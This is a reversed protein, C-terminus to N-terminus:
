SRACREFARDPYAKWQGARGLSGSTQAPHKELREAHNKRGRVFTGTGSGARHHQKQRKTRHSSRHLAAGWLGLRGASDNDEIGMFPLDGPCAAMQRQALAQGQSRRYPCLPRKQYGGVDSDTHHGRRSSCVSRHQAMTTHQSGSFANNQNTQRQLGRCRPLHLCRSSSQCRCAKPSRDPGIAVGDISPAAWRHGQHTQKRHPHTQRQITEVTKAASPPLTHRQQCAM